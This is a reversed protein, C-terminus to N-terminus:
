LPQKGYVRSEFSNLWLLFTLYYYRYYIAVHVFCLLLICDCFNFFLIIRSDLLVSDNGLVLLLKNHIGEKYIAPATEVIGELWKGWASDIFRGVFLKELIPFFNLLNSIM